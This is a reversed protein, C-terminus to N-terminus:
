KVGKASDYVVYGNAVNLKVWGCCPMGIFPSQKSKSYIKNKSIKTTTKPDFVMLSAKSGVTIKNIPLDFKRAPNISMLAILKNLDIVKTKVLYTYLLTFAYDMSAIGFCSHILDVTKEKESHPAHDTAIMDITGDKIGKILSIRDQKTRLPPNVKYIGKNKLMSCDLLLHQPTVECSITKLKRKYKRILDVSEKCSIHCLHYKAKTAAALKLDREVQKWESQSSITPIHHKKAFACNQICGNKESLTPDEAHACVVKNLKATQLLAQRMLNTKQIGCGDDSFAFAYKANNKFDVLKSKGDRNITITSFPLVNIHSVKKSKDIIYKLDKVTATNPKLNPMCCITTYGGHAAAKTASKIDEKYEYGPERLHTHVDILGPDIIHNKLDYIKVGDHKINNSIEKIIGKQIFIDKKVLKKDIWVQANKIILTDM